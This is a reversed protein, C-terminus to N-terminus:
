RAKRVAEIAEIEYKHLVLRGKDPTYDHIIYAKGFQELAYADAQNDDSFEVGWKKFVHMLMTNKKAGGSGSVFKKLSNPPVILPEQHLIDYVALKVVGGLEGAMERGFKANNAYGEMVVLDIGARKQLALWDMFWGRVAALRVIESDYRSLPFAKKKAEGDVSFGFGTYSQDIGVVRM